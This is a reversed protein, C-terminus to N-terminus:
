YRRDAGTGQSGVIAAIGGILIIICGIMFIIQYVAIYDYQFGDIWSGLYYGIAMLAVTLVAYPKKMMVWIVTLVTIMLPPLCYVLFQMFSPTSGAQVLMVIFSVLVTLAGVIAIIMGASMGSQAPRAPRYSDYGGRAPRGYGDDYAPRRREGGTEPYGTGPRRDDRVPRAPAESGTNVTSTKRIVAGCYTCFTSTDSIQKGCKGCFM